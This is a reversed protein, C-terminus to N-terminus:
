NYPLRKYWTNWLVVSTGALVLASLLAQGPMLLVTFVPLATIATQGITGIFVNMLDRRFGRNPEFTPDEKLIARKVPGWFGWPRVTKYFEKLVERDTPATLLTGGLSGAVSLLLILPFYYLPLTDPFVTPLLMASLIGALMGWFFGNGNFRWWHWKLVNAAVYGGWLAGVIWQLVSNVDQAYLGMIISVIVVVMGVGYNVYSIQRNSAEPRISKLYIDNVIYAQAANLTGAFTGIFAAMLGVLLVGMLGSPAFQYIAAPLIKEFDIAGSATQLDLDEYFLLALVTFGTVMLYRAPLLVINVFMSMLASDRPSRSALIKQMDYNPAPGALSALIGKAVMLSFFMGFPQFKDDSIKQNVDDILGSWDLNLRWNFFLESWGEPVPLSTGSLKNMAILAISVSAVLMLFFQLLDAWVISSMGGLVAYFMAFFTFVIGYLHPVFEAAVAFPVYPEVVTWPIFISVFKGLGVFGYAMFGLCSLLAFAVIVRHSRMADPGTGFRTLMWEAGTSVNSRRLWMALYVFMFVQNFVPWLWPLWISKVGYVFLITVMWITGSIDFMGSANSLGLLYWPLTNGGLMYAKKDAKASRRLLLGILPLACMYSCIIALDLASLKM